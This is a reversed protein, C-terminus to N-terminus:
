RAFHKMRGKKFNSGAANLDFSTIIVPKKTTMVDDIRIRPGSAPTNIIM